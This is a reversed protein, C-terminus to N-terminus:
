KTSYINWQPLGLARVRVGCDCIHAARRAPMTAACRGGSARRSMKGWRRTPSGGRMMNFLGLLLVVAVAGIAVPVLYYMFTTM